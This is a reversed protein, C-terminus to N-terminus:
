KIYIYIYMESTIRKGPKGESFERDGGWKRRSVLGVVRAEQGQGEGISPFLVKVTGLVEGGM